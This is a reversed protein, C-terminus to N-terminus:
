ICRIGNSWLKEIPSDHNIQGNKYQIYACEDYINKHNILGVVENEDDLLEIYKGKVIIKYIDYYTIEDNWVIGGNELEFENETDTDEYKSFEDERFINMNKKTDADITGIVWGYGDSLEIRYEDIDIYHVDFFISNELKVVSKNLIIQM